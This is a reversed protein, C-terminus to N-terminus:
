LREGRQYLPLFISFITGGAFTTLEIHGGHGEIIKNAILLGLGTGTKKDSYQSSLLIKTLQDPIGPGTDAIRIVVQEPVSADNMLTVSVIGKDNKMAEISNNILNLLARELSKQNGTIEDNGSQNTFQIRLGTKEARYKNQFIVRQVFDGLHIIETLQLDQRSYSLVSEMLDSLNECEQMLSSMDGDEEILISKKKALLQIGTSLRNIINRADHAFESLAEGLVAQKELQELSKRLKQSPSVDKFNLIKRLDKGEKFHSITLEVSLREGVRNPLDVLYKEIEGADDSSCRHKADFEIEGFINELSTNKLEVPSFNFIAPFAINFDLIMNQEDLILIGESVNEFCNLYKELGEAQDQNKQRLQHYADVYRVLASILEYLTTVAESIEGSLSTSKIGFAMLAKQNMDLRIPLTYVAQFKQDRGARHLESLPRRGPQWIDLDVFRELEISPIEEPLLTAGYSATRRLFGERGPEQLYVALDDPFENRSFVDSINQYFDKEDCEILDELSSILERFIQSIKRKIGQDGNNGKFIIILLPNTKGIFKFTMEASVQIGSKTTIFSQRTGGDPALLVNFNGIFDEVGSQRIEDISHGSLESFRFNGAEIHGNKADVLLCPWPYLDLLNRLDFIDLPYAMSM